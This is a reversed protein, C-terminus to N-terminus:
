WRSVVTCASCTEFELAGPLRARRGAYVAPVPRHRAHRLRVHGKLGVRLVGVNYDFIWRPYRGSVV